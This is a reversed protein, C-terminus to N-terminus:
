RSPRSIKSGSFSDNKLQRESLFFYVTARSNAKRFSVYMVKSSRWAAPAKRPAKTGRQSVRPVRHCRTSRTPTPRPAKRGRKELTLPEPAQGQSDGVGLSTGPAVFSHGFYHKRTQTLLTAIITRVRIFVGPRGHIWSALIHYRLRVLTPSRPNHPESVSYASAM